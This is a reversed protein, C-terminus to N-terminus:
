LTEIIFVLNPMVIFNSDTVIPCVYKRFFILSESLEQLLLTLIARPNPVEVADERAYSLNQYNKYGRMKMERYQDRPFLMKEWPIGQVDKGNAVDQASVDPM